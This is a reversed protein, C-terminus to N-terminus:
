CGERSIGGHVLIVIKGNDGSIEKERGKIELFIQLTHNSM